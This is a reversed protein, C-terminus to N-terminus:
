TSFFIFGILNNIKKKKLRISVKEPAAEKILYVFSNIIERLWNCTHFLCDMTFVQEQQDLTSFKTFVSPNPFSIYCGLLADIESLDALQLGRIVRLLGPLAM